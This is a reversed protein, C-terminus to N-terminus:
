IVERETNMEHIVEFDCSCTECIFEGREEDYFLKVAEIESECMGCPIKSRETIGSGELYGASRLDDFDFLSGQGLTFDDESAGNWREWRPSEIKCGWKKMNSKGNFQRVDACYLHDQKIEYVKAALDNRLLSFELHERESSWLLTELKRVYAVHLPREENRILYLQFPDELHAFGLAFDGSMERLRAVVGPVRDEGDLVRFIAESDVPTQVSKQYKNLLNERNIFHGNHVGVYDDSVFPHCHNNHVSGVTALRTHGLCMLTRSTIERVLEQFRRTKFLVSAPRAEKLVVLESKSMLAIGTGDKGRSENLCALDMVAGRLKHESMPSLLKESKAFGFIGCM